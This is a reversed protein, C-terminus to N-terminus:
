VSVLDRLQALKAEGIGPVALLEDVSGFAGHSERHEIIAGATAPGVGPLADLQEATATNLDVPASPSPEGTPAGGGAGAVVTPEDAEGLRPFWVRAGDVLPAALNVRDLDADVAPGGAATLLDAIRAGAPVTHLGPAAVAGAAHVVLSAAETTTTATPAAPSSDGSAVGPAAGPAYPVLDETPPLAPQRLLAFGAAGLGAAFLVVAVVAGLRSRAAALLRDALESPSAPPSPRRPEAPAPLDDAM